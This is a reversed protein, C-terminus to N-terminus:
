KLFLFLFREFLNFFRPFSRVLNNKRPTPLLVLDSLLSFHLLRNPLLLFSSPTM